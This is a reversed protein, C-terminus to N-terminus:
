CYKYEVEANRVREWKRKVSIRTRNLKTSIEEYSAGEKVWQVLLAIEKITWPSNKKKEVATSDKKLKAVFWAEERDFLDEHVRTANWRDPNNKLFERFIELDIRYIKSTRMPNSKAELWGKQIWDLLATQDVGIMKSAQGTTLYLESYVCGGLGLKEATRIIGMPTRGLKRAIQKVPIEGWADMLYEREEITWKKHSNKGM